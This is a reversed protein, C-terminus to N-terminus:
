KDEGFLTRLNHQPIYTNLEIYIKGCNMLNALTTSIYAIHIYEAERNYFVLTGTLHDEDVTEIGFYKDFDNSFFSFFDKSSMTYIQKKYGYMWHKIELPYDHSLPLLIANSFSLATYTTDFIPTIVTDNKIYYIDGNIQPIVFSDKKVVFISDASLSDNTYFYEMYDPISVHTTDNNNDAYYNSLQIALQIEEEKKNMGSILDIDAKFIFKLNQNNQCVITVMYNKDARDIIIGSNTKWLNFFWSRNALSDLSIVSDNLLIFLGSDNNKKMTEAVSDSLLVSLLEREVFQTILKNEINISDPLFKCGIHEVINNDDKRIIINVTDNSVLETCKFVHNKTIISDIKCVNNFSEFLLENKHSYFLNQANCTLSALLALTGFVINRFM